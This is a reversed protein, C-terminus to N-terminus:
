RWIQIICAIMSWVYEPISRLAESSDLTHKDEYVVSMSASYYRGNKKEGRRVSVFDRYCVFVAASLM